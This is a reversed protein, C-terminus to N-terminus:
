HNLDSIQFQELRAYFEDLVQAFLEGFSNLFLLLNSKSSVDFTVTVDNDDSRQTISIEMAPWRM